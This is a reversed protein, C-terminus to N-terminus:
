AHEVKVGSVIVESYEDTSETPASKASPNSQLYNGVKFYSKASSKLTYPLLRGNYTFSYVGDAIDYRCTYPKGLQFAGDVLFGHPEDGRTLWLQSGEVRWVCVDDQDDHVQGIVVHPKVRTLRNVQGSWEMAHRGRTPWYGEPDDAVRERLESRPNSSGSTTDGGHWV